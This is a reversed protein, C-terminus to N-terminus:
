SRRRRTSAEMKVTAASGANHIMLRRHRRTPRVPVDAAAPTGGPRAGVLRWGVDAYLGSAGIKRLPGGDPASGATTSMTM